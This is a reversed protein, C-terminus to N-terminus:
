VQSDDKLGLKKHVEQAIDCIAKAFDRPNVKIESTPDEPRIKICARMINKRVMSTLETGDIHFKPLEQREQVALILAAIEKPEAEISIKM